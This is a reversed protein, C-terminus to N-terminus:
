NKKVLLLRCVLQDPSQLESTHEESRPTTHFRGVRKPSDGSIAVPLEVDFSSKGTRARRRSGPLAGRCNERHASAKPTGGAFCFPLGPRREPAREANAAVGGSPNKEFCVGLGCAGASAPDAALAHCPEGSPRPSDRLIPFPRYPGKPKAAVLRIRCLSARPNRPFRLFRPELRKERLAGSIAWNSTSLRWALTSRPLCCVIIIKRFCNRNRGHRKRISVCPGGGCCRARVFPSQESYTGSPRTNSCGVSWSATM